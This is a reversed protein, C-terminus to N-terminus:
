PHNAPGALNAYLIRRGRPSPSGNPTELTVFVADIRELIRPNNVKLVWRNETNDELAFLGLNQPSGENPQRYGWAQFSAAIRNRKKDQLDFAYFILLKKSVYYVRGYTRRTQGSSAIDYVDVIHLDRAGFLERAQADDFTQAENAKSTEEWLKNKYNAITSEQQEARQNLEHLKAELEAIRKNRDAESNRAAELEQGRDEFQSRVTDLQARYSDRDKESQAYKAQADALLRQLEDRQVEKQHLLSSLSKEKDEAAVTRDRWNRVQTNLNQLAPTLQVERIRFGTVTAAACLLLAVSGYSLAPRQLWHLFQLFHSTRAQAHATSDLRNSTAPAPEQRARDLLRELLEDEDISLGNDTAAQESKKLVAVSGLDDASIRRFDAYLKRCEGCQALHQQLEELESASLEGIAALACLEEYWENNHNKPDSVIRMM